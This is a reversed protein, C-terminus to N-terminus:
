YFIPRLNSLDRRINKQMRIPYCLDLARTHITVLLPISIVTIPSILCIVQFAVKAIGQLWNPHSTLSFKAPIHSKTFTEKKDVRAQLIVNMYVM